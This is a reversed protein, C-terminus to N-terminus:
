WPCAARGPGPPIVHQGSAPRVMQDAAQPLEVVRRIADHLDQQKFPKAVYDDMGAQRFARVQEPLANATMAIIPTHRAPGNLQRIKRAATVGDMRPMQIDMLILDYSNEEAAAVAETGDGAIEVLHGARSLITCALEQNM